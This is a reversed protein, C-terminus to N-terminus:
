KRLIVAASGAAAIAILVTWASLPQTPTEAPAQTTPVQTQTKTPRVTTVSTQTPVPLTAPAAVNFVVTGIYGGSSGRQDSFSVDYEGAEQVAIKKSFIGNGTATEKQTEIWDPGFVVGSPGQVQLQVGNGGNNDLTGEILLASGLTQNLPSNVHIEKSRDIVQLVFATISGSRLDYVANKILAEVKYQTGKLGNTNFVVTYNGKDPQVVVIRDDIATATYESQYLTVDLSTGIPLDTTINVVIPRGLEVSSPGDINLGYASVATVLTLLFLATLLIRKM